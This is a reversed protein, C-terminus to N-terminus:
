LMFGVHGVGPGLVHVDISHYWENHQINAMTSFSILVKKNVMHSIQAKPTVTVAHHRKM